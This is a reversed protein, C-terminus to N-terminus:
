RAFDEGIPPINGLQGKAFIQFKDSLIFIIALLMLVIVVAAIIWVVNSVGKKM